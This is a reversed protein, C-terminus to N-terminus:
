RYGRYIAFPKEKDFRENNKKIKQELFMPFTEADEVDFELEVMREMIETVLDNKKMETSVISKRKKDM